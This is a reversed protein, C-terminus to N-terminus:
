KNLLVSVGSGYGATVIDPRGDGNFDKVAISNVATPGPFPSGRAARFGGRGNGEMIFVQGPGNARTIALDLKGNGTFDGVALPGLNPGVKFPSGPAQHLGGHGNGLLVSVTKSFNCSVAVDPHGDRNFDGEAISEPTGHVRVPAGAAGFGGKGNGLLISASDSHFDAFALDLKGDGNFDAVAM